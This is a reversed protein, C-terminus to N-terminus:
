ANKDTVEQIPRISADVVLGDRYVSTNLGGVTEMEIIGINNSVHEFMEDMQNRTERLLAKFIFYFGDPEVDEGYNIDVLMQLRDLGCRLHSYLDCECTSVDDDDNRSSPHYYKAKGSGNFKRVIKIDNPFYPHIEEQRPTDKQTLKSKSM